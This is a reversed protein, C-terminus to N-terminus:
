GNGGNREERVIKALALLQSSVQLGARQIAEPNIAFRVHSDEITLEIAGGAAAFGPLEGVLLANSGSLARLVTSLHPKESASVFVIQCQRAVTPDTTRVLRVPRNLVQKGELTHDLTGGFPDEGLVCISFPSNKEGFSSEPWEVFKGFNFLFAAKVQYEGAQQQSRVGAPCLLTTIIAIAACWPLARKSARTGRPKSGHRNAGGNRMQRCEKM